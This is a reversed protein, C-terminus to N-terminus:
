PGLVAWYIGRNAGCHPRGRLVKDVIKFSATWYPDNQYM